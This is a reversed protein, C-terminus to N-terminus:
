EIGTIEKVIKELETKWTSEASSYYITGRHIESFREKLELDLEDLTISGVDFKSYQSIVISPININRIKMHELIKKGAFSEPRGGAPDDENADFSPMSMDLILIDYDPNRKIEKLAPRYAREISLKSVCFKSSLLNKIDTFKKEQDEVILVKLDM